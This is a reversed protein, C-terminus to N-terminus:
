AGVPFSVTVLPAPHCAGQAAQNNGRSQRLLIGAIRPAIGLATLLSLAQQETLFGGDLSALVSRVMDRSTGTM